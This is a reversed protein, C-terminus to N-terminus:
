LYRAVGRGAKEVLKVFEAFAPRLHLDQPTQWNAGPQIPPRPAILREIEANLHANLKAAAAPELDVIWLPM